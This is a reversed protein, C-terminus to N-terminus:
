VVGRRHFWGCSAKRSVSRLSRSKSLRHTSRFVSWNWPNPSPVGSGSGGPSRDRLSWRLRIPFHGCCGNSISSRCGRTGSKWWRGSARAPSRTCSNRTMGAPPSTCTPRSVRSWTMSGTRPGRSVTRGGSGGSRSCTSRFACEHRGPVPLPFTGAVHRLGPSSTRARSHADVRSQGDFGGNWVPCCIATAAWVLATIALMSVPLRHRLAFSNFGDPGSLM